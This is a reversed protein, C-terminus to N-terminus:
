VFYSTDVAVDELHTNGRIHKTVAEEAVPQMKQMRKRDGLSVTDEPLNFLPSNVLRLRQLTAHRRVFELLSDCNILLGKLEVEMLTPFTAELLDAAVLGVVHTRKLDGKIIGSGFSLEQLAQCSKILGLLQMIRASFEIAHIFDLNLRRLGHFVDGAAEFKEPFRCILHIWSDHSISVSWAPFSSLQVAQIVILVGRPDKMEAQCNGYRRRLTKAGLASRYPGPLETDDAWFVPVKEACVEIAPVHANEIRRLYSFITVLLHLDNGKDRFEKRKVIHKRRLEATVERDDREDFSLHEAPRDDDERPSVEDVCFVLTKLARGYSPHKVIELLVHLSDESSLLFARESFHVKAFTRETKNKADRKTKRLALLDRPEVSRAILEFVEPPISLLAPPFVEPPVLPLIYRTTTITGVVQINGYSNRTAETM